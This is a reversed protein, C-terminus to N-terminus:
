YGSNGIRPRGLESDRLRTLSAQIPAAAVWKVGFRGYSGTALWAASFIQSGSLGGTAPGGPTYRRWGSVSPRASVPCKEFLAGLSAGPLVTNFPILGARARTPTV